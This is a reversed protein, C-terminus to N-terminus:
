FRESLLNVAQATAANGVLLPLEVTPLRLQALREKNWAQLDERIARRAGSLVGEQGVSLMQELRHIGGDEGSIAAVKGDKALLVAREDKSFLESLVGNIVLLALPLRLETRVAQVLELTESTPLEEPLAVVVVGTHGPDEFNEWAAEADRRLIGPPAVALIVRPVRLMDLGHGTAPADYIVTDFRRRGSPLLEVSHYWAKGLVAWESLGPIGAFFGRVLRNRFVAQYVLQSKLRMSGYEQMAAEPELRTAFLCERIQTIETTLPACGFLTSLHEKACCTTLLVRRGRRSLAIALSAAVTTKGVGGKGTVFLFSRHDIPDM